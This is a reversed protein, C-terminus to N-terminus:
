ILNRISISFLDYAAWISRISNEQYGVVFYSNLSPVHITGYSRAENVIFRRFRLEGEYTYSAIHAGNAATTTVTVTEKAPDITIAGLGHWPSTSPITNWMLDGTTGNLRFLVASM